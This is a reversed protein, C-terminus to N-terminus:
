LEFFNYTNLPALFKDLIVAALFDPYFVMLKMPNNVDLMGIKGYKFEEYRYLFKGDPSFKTVGNNSASYFNSFIDVDVANAKIDYSNIFSFFTGSFLSVWLLLYFATIANIVVPLKKFHFSM